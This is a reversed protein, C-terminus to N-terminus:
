YIHYRQAHGFLQVASGEVAFLPFSINGGDSQVFLEATWFDM